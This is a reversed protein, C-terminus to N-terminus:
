IGIMVACVCLHSGAIFFWPIQVFLFCPSTLTPIRVAKNRDIRIIPIDWDLHQIAKRPQGKKQKTAKSRMKETHMQFNYVIVAIFSVTYIAKINLSTAVIINCVIFACTWMKEVKKWNVVLTLYHKNVTLFLRDTSSSRLPDAAM